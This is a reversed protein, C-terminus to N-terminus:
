VLIDPLVLLELLELNVMLEMEEQYVLIVLQVQNVM